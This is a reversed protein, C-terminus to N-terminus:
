QQPITKHGWSVSPHFPSFWSPARLFVGVLAGLFVLKWDWFGASLGAQALRVLLFIGATVLLVAGSFGIRVSPNESLNDPHMEALVTMAVVCITNAFVLTLTLIVLSPELRLIMAAACGLVLLHGVWEGRAPPRSFVLWVAVAVFSMSIAGMIGAELVSVIALLATYLSASLVRFMGIVWTSPRQFSTKAFSAKGSFLLLVLGGATLQVFSFGWPDLDFRVLVVRTVASLLAWSLVAGFSIVWGHRM